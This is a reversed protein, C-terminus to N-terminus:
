AEGGYEAVTSDSGWACFGSRAGPFQRALGDHAAGEGVYGFLMDEPGRYSIFLAGSAPNRGPGSVVPVQQSQLFYGAQMVQDIGEVEFQVELLGDRASPLLLVRHHAEDIALYAGEGVWDSVRAGLVECWLAVDAEVDTSALVVGSLGCIGADRPGHYRWGSSLPRVVFELALGGRLKLGLLAKCRRAACEAESGRWTERGALRQELAKLAGMDRLELGLSAGAEGEVLALSHDRADSRFLAVGEGAEVRQLGVIDEAFAAARGLDAVGRRVYALKEIM